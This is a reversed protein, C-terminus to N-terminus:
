WYYFVSVVHALLAALLAFSLPVHAYLWLQLLTRYRVDRRLRDILLRKRSMEKLLEGNLRAQDAPLKAGLTKLKECAIATAHPRNIRALSFRSTESIDREMARSARTVVENMEDPLDLALRRCKRDLEAVKPLLEEVTDSAMNRTIMEPYSLYAYIGFFGSVIVAVMLAYALTHINWGFEFACHLTVVVLLSVGLYVHASTWGQLTGIASRYRRKRVGLLMLWVILAAGITGLTYGLYTGGYPKLSATPPQHWAYAAISGICLLLALKLYRGRQYSLISQHQQM